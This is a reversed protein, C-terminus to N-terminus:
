PGFHMDQCGRITARVRNRVVRRVKASRIACAFVLFFEVRPANMGPRLMEVVHEQLVSLVQCDCIVRRFRGGMREEAGCLHCRFASEPIVLTSSFEGCADSLLQRAQGPEEESFAATNRFLSTLFESAAAMTSRAIVCLELVADLFTRAYVGGRTSVFLGNPSGDYEVVRGYVCVWSGIYITLRGRICYLVVEEPAVETDDGREADCYMCKIETHTYELIKAEGATRWADIVAAYRDCQRVESACPFM